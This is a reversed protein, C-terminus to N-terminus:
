KSNNNNIIPQIHYTEGDISRLRLKEGVADRFAGYVGSVPLMNGADTEKYVQYGDILVSM